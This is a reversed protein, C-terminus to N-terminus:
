QRAMFNIMKFASATSLESFNKRSCLVVKPYSFPFLMNDNKGNKIKIAKISLTHSHSIHKLGLQLLFVMKKFSPKIHFANVKHTTAFEM